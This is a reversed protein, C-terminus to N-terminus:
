NIKPPSWVSYFGSSIHTENHYFKQKKAAFAFLTVKFEIENSAILSVQATSTTCNSHGCKGSCGKQKDNSQKNKECCDKKETKGAIEKKCCYKEPKTGCAYASSPM